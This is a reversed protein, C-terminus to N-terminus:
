ILDHDLMGGTVRGVVGADMVLLEGGGWLGEPM